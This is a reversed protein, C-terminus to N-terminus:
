NTIKLNRRFDLYFTLVVEIKLNKNLIRLRIRHRTKSPFTSLPGLILLKTSNSSTPDFHNVKFILLDFIKLFFFERNFM